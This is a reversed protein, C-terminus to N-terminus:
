MAVQRADVLVETTVATSVGAEDRATLTDVYEVSATWQRSTRKRLFALAVRFAIGDLWPGLPRTTDFSHLKEFAITFANQLVEEVDEKRFLVKHLRRGVRPVHRRYLSTYARQQGALARRILTEDDEEKSAGGPAAAEGCTSARKGDM